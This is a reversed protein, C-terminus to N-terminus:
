RKWKIMNQYNKKNEDTDILTKGKNQRYIESMNNFSNLWLVTGTLCKDKTIWVRLFGFKSNLLFSIFYKKPACNHLQEFRHQSTKDMNTKDLHCNQFTNPAGLASICRPAHVKRSINTRHDLFTLYCYFLACMSACWRTLLAVHQWKSSVFMSMVDTCGKKSERKM